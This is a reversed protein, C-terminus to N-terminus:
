GSTDRRSFPRLAKEIILLVISTTPLTIPSIRQAGRNEHNCYGYTKSRFTRHEKPLMSNTAITRGKDEQFEPRHVDVIISLDVPLIDLLQDRAPELGM